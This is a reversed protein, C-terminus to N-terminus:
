GTHQVAAKGFLAASLLWVAGYIGTFVLVFTAPEHAGMLLTSIGALVQMAAM